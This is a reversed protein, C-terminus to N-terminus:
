QTPTGTADPANLQQLQRLVRIRGRLAATDDPSLSLKELSRQSQVILGDLHALLKKWLESNKDDDTLILSEVSM